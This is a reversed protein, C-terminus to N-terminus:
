PWTAGITPVASNLDELWTNEKSRESAFTNRLTFKTM